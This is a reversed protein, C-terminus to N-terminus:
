LFNCIGSAASEQRKLAPQAHKVDKKKFFKSIDMKRKLLIGCVFSGGPEVLDSRM